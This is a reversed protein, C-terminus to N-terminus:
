RVVQVIGDEDIRMVIGRPIEWGNARVAAADDANSVMVFRMPGGNWPNFVAVPMSCGREETM